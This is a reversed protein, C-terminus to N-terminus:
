FIFPIIANTARRYDQYERGFEQTMFREETRWKALFMLFLVGAAVFARWEGVVLATGLIALTLGSYIPHRVVAYPGTRILTHDEKVTVMGSWNRGLVTRAWIAIAVGACTLVAGVAAWAHDRPVARSLLLGWVPNDSWLLIFVVMGGLIQLLLGSASQRRVARKVRFAMMIWYLAFAVWAGDISWLIAHHFSM